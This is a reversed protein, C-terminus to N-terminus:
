MKAVLAKQAEAKATKWDDFAHRDERDGTFEQIYSHHLHCLTLRAFSSLAFLPLQPTYPAALLFLPLLYSSFCCTLLPAALLLFLLHQLLHRLTAISKCSTQGSRRDLCAPFMQWSFVSLDGVALSGDSLGSVQFEPPLEFSPAPIDPVDAPPPPPVPPATSSSPPPPPPPLPPPIGTACFSPM